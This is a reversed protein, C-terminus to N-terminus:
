LCVLLNPFAMFHKLSDVTTDETTETHSLSKKLRYKNDGWEHVELYAQADTDYQLNLDLNYYKCAAQCDFHSFWKMKNVHVWPESNVNYCKFAWEKFSELQGYLEDGEGIPQICEAGLDSFLKDM